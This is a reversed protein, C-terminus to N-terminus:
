RSEHRLSPGQRLRHFAAHEHEGGFDRMNGKVNVALRSSNQFCVVYLSRRPDRYPSHPRLTLAQAELCEGFSRLASGNM